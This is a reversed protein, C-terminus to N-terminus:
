AWMGLLNPNRDLAQAADLVTRYVGSAVMRAVARGNAEDLAASTAVDWAAFYSDAHNM